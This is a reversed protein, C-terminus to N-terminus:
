AVCVFVGTHKSRQLLQQILDFLSVQEYQQTGIVTHRIEEEQTKM